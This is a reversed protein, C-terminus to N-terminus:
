YVPETSDDLFTKKLLEKMRKRKEQRFLLETKNEFSKLAEEENKFSEFTLDLHSIKLLEIIQGSLSCLKVEGGANHCIRLCYLLFAFGSSTISIIDSCDFIIKSKGANALKNVQSMIKQTYPAKLESELKIIEPVSDVPKQIQRHPEKSQMDFQPRHNRQHPKYYNPKADTTQRNQPKNTPKNRSKKKQM